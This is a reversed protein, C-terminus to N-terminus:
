FSKRGVIVAICILSGLGMMFSYTMVQAVKPTPRIALVITLAVGAVIFICDLVLYLPGYEGTLYVAFSLVFSLALCTCAFIVTKQLGYKKPFTEVPTHEDQLFDRIDTVARGGFMATFFMGALIVVGPTPSGAMAGMLVYLAQLLGLTLARLLATEFLHFALGIIVGAIVAWPILAGPAFRILPIMSAALFVISFLLGFSVSIEGAAVPNLRHQARPGTCDMHRDAVFDMSFGGVALLFGSLMMWLSLTASAGAAYAGTGALAAVMITRNLRFLKLFGIINKM